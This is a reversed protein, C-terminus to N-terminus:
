GPSHLRSRARSVSAPLRHAFAVSPPLSRLATPPQRTSTGQLARQPSRRVRTRYRHTADTAPLPPEAVRWHHRGPELPTRLSRMRCPATSSTRAKLRCHTPGDVVLAMFSTVHIAEAFGPEPAKERPSAMSDAQGGCPNAVAVCTVELSAGSLQLCVAQRIRAVM